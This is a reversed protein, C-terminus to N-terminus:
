LMLALGIALTAVAMAAVAGETPAMRGTRRLLTVAAQNTATHALAAPIAMWPSWAIWLTLGVHLGTASLRELGGWAPHAGAAAGQSALQARAAEGQADQRRLLRASVLAGQFLVVAEALTWGLGLWVATRLDTGWLALAAWRCLEEAPGSALLVVGALRERSLALAQCALAVPARLLLAIGWGVAGVGLASWHPALWLLGALLAAVAPGVLLHIPVAPPLATPKQEM